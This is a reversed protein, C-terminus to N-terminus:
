ESKSWDLTEAVSSTGKVVVQLRLSVTDTLPPYMVSGTQLSSSDLDVTKMFRGDHIELRGRQAAKIAPSERNWRIHLNEDRAEATLGLHFATADVGTPKPYLNLAAQFGLLIGALLFIFSLPIWFWGRRRSHLPEPPQQYAYTQEPPIEGAQERPPNAASEVAAAFTAYRPAPQVPEPAGEAVANGRPHRPEGIPRRPPPSGGELEWRQFPFVDDNSDPVAGNRYVLFSATSTKTAYPRILLFVGDPAPFYKGFLERDDDGLTDQDRTSSRFLGVPYREAARHREVVGAFTAQDKESLLYSPGRRHECAVTAFDEIWIEKEDARGVLIGGVEAGRRPISGFGTLVDALIGELADLSLHITLESQPPRYTYYGAAQAAADPTQQTPGM